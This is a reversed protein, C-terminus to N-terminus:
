AARKRRQRKAARAEAVEAKIIKQVVISAVVDLPLEYVRKRRLPRVSFVGRDRDITVTGPQPASKDLPALVRLHVRKV